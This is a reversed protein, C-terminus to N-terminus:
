TEKFQEPDFMDLASFARRQVLQRATPHHRPSPKDQFHSFKPKLTASQNAMTQEPTEQQM